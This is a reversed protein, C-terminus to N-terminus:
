LCKVPVRVGNNYVSWPSALVFIISGKDSKFANLCWTDMDIVTTQKIALLFPPMIGYYATTVGKEDNDPPGMAQGVKTTANL